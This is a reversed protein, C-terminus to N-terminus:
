AAKGYLNSHEVALEVAERKLNANPGFWASALRNDATRGLKHDVTYTVANVLGWYTGKASKLNHGPSSELAEFVEEARKGLLEEQVKKWDGVLNGDEMTLLGDKLAAKIATPKMVETVFRIKGAETFQRKSLHRAVEEFQKLQATAIGMAQKAEEQMQDDFEKVHTMSFHSGKKNASVTGKKAGEKQIDQMAWDLTNNCVVRVTTFMSVIRKGWVHPNSLLLYGGIEDGGVLSFSKQISALAWTLQGNRLSGATDMKMSGADVFEKFFKFAQQNQTPKWDAGCIGLVHGDTSRELAFHSTVAKKTVTQLPVRKVEWDLGAAKLIEEPSLCDAVKVGLGHWPTEGAYAMTEVNHSM